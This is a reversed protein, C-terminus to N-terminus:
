RRHTETRTGTLGVQLIALQLFLCAAELVSPLSSAMEGLIQWIFCDTFFLIFLKRPGLSFCCTNRTRAEEPGERQSPGGSGTIASTAARQASSTLRSFLSGNPRSSLQSPHSPSRRFPQPYELYCLAWKRRRVCM